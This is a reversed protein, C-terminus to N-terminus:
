NSKVKEYIYIAPVDMLNLKTTKFAKLLKFKESKEVTNSYNSWANYYDPYTERVYKNEYNKKMSSYIVVYNYELPNVPYRNQAGRSEYVNFGKVECNRIDDFPDEEGKNTYMLIKYDVLKSKELYDSMWLYARTRPKDIKLQKFYNLPYFLYSLTVTIFILSKLKENIKKNDLFEVLGRGAYVLLLPIIPLMWRENLRPNLSFFLIYSFIIGIMIIHKYDKDIKINQKKISSFITLFVKSIEYFAFFFIFPTLIHNLSILYKLPNTNVSSFVVGAEVNRMLLVRSIFKNFNIISFPNSISFSLFAGLIFLIIAKIDKRLLLVLGIVAGTLLGTIKTGIGLGFFVSSLFIHIYNIKQVDKKLYSVLFYISIVTFVMLFNDHNLYHAHHIMKWNLSALFFTFLAGKEDDFIKKYLLYSFIIGIFSFLSNVIRM